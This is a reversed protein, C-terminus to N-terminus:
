VAHFVMRGVARGILIGVFCIGINAVFNIAAYGFAGREFLNITELGFTSLTTFGGTMGTIAFVRWTGLNKGMPGDFVVSMFGIAFCGVANVVFTSWPFNSTIGAIGFWYSVLYRLTAGIGGGIAVALVNLGMRVSGKKGRNM